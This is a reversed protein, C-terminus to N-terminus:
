KNELLEIVFKSRYPKWKEAIALMDEKLSKENRLDFHTTMAKKLHYDDVPFVDPRQLSFLLIMDITWNGVGQIKGLVARIEEDTKSEWEFSNMGNEDWFLCLNVLANYKQRSMNIYKLGVDGITFLNEHTVLAENLLGKLRKFRLSNGRCQIQMDLICSVMDEFVIANKSVEM